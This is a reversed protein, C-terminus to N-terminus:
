GDKEGDSDVLLDIEDAGGELQGEDMTENMSVRAESQIKRVEDSFKEALWTIVAVTVICGYSIGNLVLITLQM